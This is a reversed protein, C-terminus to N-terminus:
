GLSPLEAEQPPRRRWVLYKDTPSMDLGLDSFGLRTIRATKLDKMFLVKPAPAGTGGFGTAVAFYIRRASKEYRLFSPWLGRICKGRCVFRADEAQRAAVGSARLEDCSAECEQDQIELEEPALKAYIGTREEATVAHTCIVVGVKRGDSELGLGGQIAQILPKDESACPREPIIAFQKRFDGQEVVQMTQVDFKSFAGTKPDYFYVYSRDSTQSLGVSSILLSLSGVMARIGLRGTKPGM